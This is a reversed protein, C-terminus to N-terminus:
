HKKRSFQFPLPLFNPFYNNENMNEFNNENPWKYKSCKMKKGNKFCKCSKKGFTFKKNLVKVTTKPSCIRRYTTMKKWKSGGRMSNANMFNRTFKDLELEYNASSANFVYTINHLKIVSGNRFIEKFQEFTAHEVPELNYRSQKVNGFDVEPETNMIHGFGDRDDFPRKKLGRSMDIPEM